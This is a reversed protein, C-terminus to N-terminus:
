ISEEEDSNQNEHISNNVNRYQAPTVGEYKKFVRVFTRLNDYGVQNAIEEISSKNDRILLSKAKRIRYQMIYDLLRVGTKEKFTTSLYTPHLGMYEAISAVTLQSNSYNQEVFELVQQQIRQDGKANVYECVEQLMQRMVKQMEYINECGLLQDISVTNGQFKEKSNSSIESLTKIMTSAMDFMLCKVLPLPLISNKFNIDYIEDMVQQASDLDGNKIYNTLIRENELPYYYTGTEPIVLDKYFIVAGENYLVRYEMAEAAESYADCIGVHTDHIGSVTALFMFNFYDQVAKQAELIDQRINDYTKGNGADPVNVICAPMDNIVTCLVPSQAQLLESVINLIIFNGIRRRERDDLKEDDPFIQGVEEIQFLAVLFRDSILQIGFQKLSSDWDAQSCNGKLMANFFSQKLADDKKELLTTIAQNQDLTERFAREILTYENTNKDYVINLGDAINNLLSKIPTYNYRLLLIVMVSCIVLYLLFLLFTWGRTGRLDALVQDMPIVAFVTWAPVGLETRLVYCKEGDVERRESIQVDVLEGSPIDDRGSQLLVNEKDDMVIFSTPNDAQQKQHFAESLDHKKILSVCVANVDKSALPFPQIFAMCDISMENNGYIKESRQRFFSSSLLERKWEQYSAEDGHYFVQYFDRSKLHGGPFVCHDMGPFYAYMEYILSHSVKAAALEESFLKVEYRDEAGLNGRLLGLNKMRKSMSLQNNSLNIQTTIEEINQISSNVVATNYRIADDTMIREMRGYLFLWTGLPILLILVYSVFWKFLISKNRVFFRTM